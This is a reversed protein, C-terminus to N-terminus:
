TPSLLYVKDAQHLLAQSQAAKDRQFFFFYKFKVLVHLKQDKLM